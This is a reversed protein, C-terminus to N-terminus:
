AEKMVSYIVCTTEIHPINRLFFWDKTSVQKGTSSNNLFIWKGDSNLFQVMYETIIGRGDERTQSIRGTKGRMTWGYVTTLQQFPIDAFVLNNRERYDVRKSQLKWFYRSVQTTIRRM